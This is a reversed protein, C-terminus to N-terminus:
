PVEWSSVALATDAVVIQISESATRGTPSEWSVTVTVEKLGSGANTVAISRSYDTDSEVPAAALSTLNQYGRARVLAAENRLISLAVVRKGDAEASMRGLSLMRVLAVLATGLVLVAMMVELLTFGARSARVRPLERPSNRFVTKRSWLEEVDSIM